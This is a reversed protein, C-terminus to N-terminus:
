NHTILLAVVQSSFSHTSRQTVEDPHPVEARFADEQKCYCLVQNKFYSQSLDVGLIRSHM